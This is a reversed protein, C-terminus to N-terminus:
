RTSKAVQGVMAVSDTLRFTLRHGRELRVANPHGAPPQAEGTGRAFLSSTELPIEAGGLDISTLTLRVFGRTPKGPSANTSEVRGMVQAGSPVLSTGDIVVPDDVLAAFVGKADIVDSSISEKLRVTLLTGAPLKQPDRFPVAGPAGPTHAPVALAPDSASADAADEGRFPVTQGTAQTGAEATGGPRSCGAWCVSLLLPLLVRGRTKYFLAM